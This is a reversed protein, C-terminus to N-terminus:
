VFNPYGKWFVVRRARSRAAVVREERGRQDLLARVVLELGGPEGALVPAIGAWDARDELVRELGGTQGAEVRVAEPM